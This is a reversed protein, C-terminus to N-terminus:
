ALSCGGGAGYAICHNAFASMSPNIFRMGLTEKSEETGKQTLNNENIENMQKGGDINIKKENIQVSHINRLKDTTSIIIYNQTYGMWVCYNM